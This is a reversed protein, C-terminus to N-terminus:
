YRWNPAEHDTLFADMEACLSKLLDEIPEAGHVFSQVYRNIVNLASIHAPRRLAPEIDALWTRAHDLCARYVRENEGDLELERNMPLAPTKDRRDPWLDVGAAARIFEIALNRNIARRSLGYGRAASWTAQREGRPLPRAVWRCGRQTVEYYSWVGMHVMAAQGACFTDHPSAVPSLTATHRQERLFRAAQRGQPSNLLCRKGPPDFVAGGAQWVIPLFCDWHGRIAAAHRNHAPATLARSVRLYEDWDWDPSPLAVGAQEFVDVNCAMVSVNIFLPVFFLKGDLRCVDFLGAGKSRRDHIELALDTVDELAPARQPLFDSTVFHIDTDSPRQIVRAGPHSATFSNLLRPWDSHLWEVNEISLEAAAQSASPEPRAANVVIGYGQRGVLLGEEKLQHLAKLITTNSLSCGRVMDRVSPLRAGIPLRGTRIQDRLQDRVQEYPAKPSARDILLAPL